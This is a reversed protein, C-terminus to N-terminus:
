LIICICGLIICAVGLIKKLGITEKLFLRSIVMTWVYTISTLPLVMSYDLFRLVIVNIVASLVYLGAGLYLNKDTLLTSLGDFGSAKKLFFSAVSGMLTMLILLGFLPLNITAM